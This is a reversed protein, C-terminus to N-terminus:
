SEVVQTLIGGRKPTQATAQTTLGLCVLTVASVAPMLRTAFRGMQKERECASSMMIARADCLLASPM